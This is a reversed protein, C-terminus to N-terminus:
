LYYATLVSFSNIIAMMMESMQTFLHLYQLNQSVSMPCHLINAFYLLNYPHMVQQTVATLLVLNLSYNLITKVRHKRCEPITFYQQFLDPFYVQFNKFLVQINEGWFQPWGAFTLTFGMACGLPQGSVCQGSVCSPQCM